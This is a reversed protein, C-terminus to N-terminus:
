GWFNICVGSLAKGFSCLQFLLLKHLVDGTKSVSKIVNRIDGTWKLKSDLEAGLNHDKSVETLQENGFM